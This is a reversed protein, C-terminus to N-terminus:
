QRVGTLARVSDSGSQKRAVVAISLYPKHFSDTFRRDAAQAIRLPFTAAWGALQNLGGIARMLNAIKQSVFGSVYEEAVNQLGADALLARMEAHTYGWRVHGGDETRSLKDGRLPPCDRYPTTLLLSGGPRLMASLDRALKRDDLIHEITELCLVQDFTGLSNRMGDLQRLDGTLFSVDSLNLLSSRAAARRASVEDHSIGIAQNGIRAAYLTFAGNGCGADLTRRSGPALHRRLWLWRDFVTPDGHLITASWGLVSVLADSM